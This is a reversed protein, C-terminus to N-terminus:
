KGICFSSFIEGLLDDARVVGTIEGLTNHAMRLDEALIEGAGSENFRDIGNQLIERTAQLISVHRERASFPTTVTDTYHGLAALIAAELADIGAGTAASVAVTVIHTAPLAGAARESLDIKNLVQIEPVGNDIHERESDNAETDDVVRIILDATDLEKQARAIGEREITDSSERIGATDAFEFALGGLNIAQKVVDRTTGPVDTVIAVSERALRNMLSSKGVNPKGTLVIKATKSMLAGQRANIILECLRDLTSSLKLQVSKDSLFDVEEEPFDIAAEVYMRLQLLENGLANVAESFAGRLSAAAQRAAQRTPADILDALGEAQALDLKNNLFARESFEGPRAMRAGLAHCAELLMTTIVVGGHCHLEAVDEGTFSNPGQFLLVLGQDIIADEHRFTCLTPTRAELNRTCLSRAIAWAQGGSLRIIAVGGKGPPTAIAAITDQDLGASNILGAQQDM